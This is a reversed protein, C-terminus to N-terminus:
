KISDIDKLINKVIKPHLEKNSHNPITLRTGKQHYFIMHSGKQRSFSFGVQEALVILQKCNKPVQRPSM